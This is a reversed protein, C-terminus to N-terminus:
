YRSKHCPLFLRFENVLASKLHNEGVLLFFQLCAAFVRQAVAALFLEDVQGARLCLYHRSHAAAALGRKAKLREFVCRRSICVGIEVVLAHAAHLGCLEVIHKFHHVLHVAVEFVYEEVLYLVDLSPVKKDVSHQALSHVYDYGAGVCFQEAGFQGSVQRAAGFLYVEVRERKGFIAGHFSYVGAAFGGLGFAQPPRGKVLIYLVAAKGFQEGYAVLAGVDGVKHVVNQLSVDFLAVVNYILFREFLHGVMQEVDRRCGNDGGVERLCEVDLGLMGYLVVYRLCAKRSAPMFFYAGLLLTRM